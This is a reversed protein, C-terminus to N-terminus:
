TLINLGDIQILFTAHGVFTVAVEDSGLPVDLRPVGTNEVTQPWGRRPESLMRRLMRLNPAFDPKLTPNFFRRGDFHDSVPRTTGLPTQSLPPKPPAHM